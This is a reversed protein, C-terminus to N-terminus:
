SVDPVGTVRASFALAAGGGAGGGRSFRFWFASGLVVRGLAASRTRTVQTVLPEGCVARM